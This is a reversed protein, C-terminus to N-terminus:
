LKPYATVIRGNKTIFMRITIGESVVGDVIYKGGQEIYGTAGSKIFNDYAEYIKSIVMDRSWEAPFFTVNKVFNEGDFLTAKYFGHEYFVRNAFSLIDTKEIANKLDHHFGGISLKGKKSLDLEMGLIHKYEMTIKKDAIETFGDKTRDYIKKMAAIEPELEIVIKAYVSELLAKTTNIIERPGKNFDKMDSSMKLVIGEATIVVPNDALHTDIGRKLSKAMKIAHKHMKGLVHLDKAYRYLYYFGKGAIVDAAITATVDVFNEATLYPEIATYIAQANQWYETMRQSREEPTLHYTDHVSDSTFRAINVIFECAKETGCYMKEATTLPHLAADGLAGIGQGLLDLGTKALSGWDRVQEVPNIRLIFTTVAQVLLDPTREWLTPQGEVVIESQTQLDNLVHEVTAVHFVFEVDNKPARIIDLSQDISEKIDAVHELNCLSANGLVQRAIDELGGAFTHYDKSNNLIDATINQVDMPVFFEKILKEQTGSLNISEITADAENNIKREINSLLEYDFRAKQFKQATALRHVKSRHILSKRLYENDPIIRDLQEVPGIQQELNYLVECAVDWSGYKIDGLIINIPDRLAREAIALCIEDTMNRAENIAVKSDLRQYLNALAAVDNKQQLVDCLQSFQEIENLSDKGMKNLIFDGRTQFDDAIIRLLDVGLLKIPYANDCIYTGNWFFLSKLERFARNATAFDANHIEDILQEVKESRLMKIVHLATNYRDIKSQRWAKARKYKFYKELRDFRAQVLPHKLVRSINDPAYISRLVIDSDFVKNKLEKESMGELQEVDQERIIEKIDFRNLVKLCEKQQKESFKGRLLQKADINHIEPTTSIALNRGTANPVYEASMGVHMWKPEIEQDKYKYTDSIKKLDSTHKYKESVIEVRFNRPVLASTFCSIFLIILLLTTSFKKFKLMPLGERGM